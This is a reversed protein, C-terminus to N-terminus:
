ESYWVRPNWFIWFVDHNEPSAGFIATTLIRTYCLQLSSLQISRAAKQNLLNLQLARVETSYWAIGEVKLHETVEDARLFQFLQSWCSRRTWRAISQQGFFSNELAVFVSITAWLDSWTDNQIIGISASSPQTFFCKWRFLWLDSWSACFSFCCCNNWAVDICIKHFILGTRETSLTCQKWQTSSALHLIFCVNVLWRPM